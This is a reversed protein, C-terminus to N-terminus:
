GELAFPARTIGSQVTGIPTGVIPLMPHANPQALSWRVTDSLHDLIESVSDDPVRDVLYHCVLRWLANAPLPEPEGTRELSIQHCLVNNGYARRWSIANGM